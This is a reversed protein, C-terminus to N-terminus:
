SSLEQLLGRAGMRHLFVTPVVNVAFQKLVPNQTTAILSNCFQLAMTHGQIMQQFYVSDYGASSKGGTASLASVITMAAPADNSNMAAPLYTGTSAAYTGLSVNGGEHDGMLKEAYLLDRYTTTVLTTLEGVFIEMLDMSYFTEVDTLDTSSLTASSPTSSVPALTGTGNAAAQDAEVTPLLGAAFSRFSPTQAGTAMQQLRAVLANEAQVIASSFTADTNGAKVGSIMQQAVIQDNGVIVVPISVGMSGAFSQMALDVNGADNLISMATQQTASNSGSLAEFQTLFRVLNNGSAANQLMSDDSGPAAPSVNLLGGGTVPSASGMQAAPTVGHGHRAKMAEFHHHGGIPGAAVSLLARTELCDCELRRRRTKM